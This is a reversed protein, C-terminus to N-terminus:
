FKLYELINLKFFNIFSVYYPDEIIRDNIDLGFDGLMLCKAKSGEPKLKSLDEMNAKDMGFIYDFEEFDEKTIQRAIHKSDLGYKKLTKIARRDPSRGVDWWGIAASEVSWTETVGAKEITNQFITEAMPSRCINGLCIMLVKKQTM